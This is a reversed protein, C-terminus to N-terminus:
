AYEGREMYLCTNRALWEDLESVLVFGSRVKGRVYRVPLPDESRAAYEMLKSPKTGTQAALQPVTVCVPAVAIIEELRM